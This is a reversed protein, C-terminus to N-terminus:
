TRIFEIYRIDKGSILISRAPRVQSWPASGEGVQWLEALLLDREEKSSSAFSGRNWRGAVQSGDNLTVLIFLGEPLGEFAYDWSAPLHHALHLGAFDAIRYSLRWQYAYAAAIGFLVPLLFYQLLNWAWPALGIGWPVHFLPTVAALYGVSIVGYAFLRDKIDPATGTIARVRISSIILGPTLVGVLQIIDTATPLDAM